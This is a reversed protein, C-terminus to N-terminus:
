RNMELHDPMGNRNGLRSRTRRLDSFRLLADLLNDATSLELTDVGAEGLASRLATERAHAAARFRLRFGEDHTDVLLQEGTEADEMMVLGLDPLELELPDFLRVALVEHRHALRNLAREWGPRSIFDSVVFVMSRRRITHFAADLMAALDTDPPSGSDESRGRRPKRMVRDLLHLVHKRGAAPPIVADVEGGFFLAGVRNGNRSLLRAMVGVFEALVTRKRVEESGFDISPTVDLLFWATVERDENFERVHPIALRATVNWDIHRVEDHLQYERLDALDLGTGRFLTRFDGNLIGDLRRLVTWELRQLLAEPDSTRPPM